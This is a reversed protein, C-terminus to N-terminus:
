LDIKFMLGLGIENGSLNVNIENEQINLSKLKYYPYIYINDITRVLIGLEFNIGLKGGTTSTIPFDGPYEERYYTYDAGLSIYPYFRSIQRLYSVKLIVPILTLEIEEKTYSTKGKDNLYDVEVSIALNEKTTLPFFYGLIGRGNFSYNNYLTKFNQDSFFAVGSGISIFLGKKELRLPSTTSLDRSKALSLNSQSIPQIEKNISEKKKVARIEKQENSSKQNITEKNKDIENKEHEAIPSEKQVAEEGGFAVILTSNQTNVRFEPINNKFDFVVRTIVPSFKGIRVGVCGLKDIDNINQASVKEVNYLDIVFRNPNTLTFFEYKVLENLSLTFILKNNAEDVKLSKLEIINNEQTKGEVPVYFLICLTVLIFFVYRLRM